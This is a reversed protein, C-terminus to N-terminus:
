RHTQVYDSMLQKELDLDFPDDSSVHGSILDIPKFKTASHISNNYALIAYIMKYKIPESKYGQTNLLHIHEILTSHLREVPSNSEPHHPTVFHINIKHLTMLDKIVTNKFEKGNDTIISKPIGHHTFFTLLSNAIEISNLTTLPYAQAYKSFPDILTLFKQQEMQFTDMHLVEFPKSPTPTINFKPRIPNRDYKCQRCIECSNIFNQITNRLQPWYYKQKIRNETEDIGRHNTKSEHYNKIVSEMDEPNEVDILKQTTRRFRYSPYKFTKRIIECFPEYNEDNEFFILYNVKPTLYEKVFDIVDQENSIQVLFRQKSEFLKQIKVKSPSNHVTTIIIQNSAHNLPANTIPIDTIPDESTNSHITVDDNNSEDVHVRLSESDPTRPRPLNQFPPNEEGFTRNFDDMYEFINGSEKAHIEVRSLADANSNLKGKKYIIEYDYEELKLRWRMLKSNPEKLSFLWQLPKHDTLIKFKRGFLYPRFYKVAWVIALLEKEITSYNQEHANLTQSAYAVPLDSGIPGQSLVAGIAYNSADTTLNFPKEFDPYQLIPENTLLNKCLAFCDTFEKTHEVKANKKLCKTLPRTLKAFNQIFRRYYGLLGLFSKIQKQTKPIPFKKIAEIKNPNPKIGAPTIIHGLYSVEKRLFESKDPQIKFNTSRLRNFVTKLNELHEQLSTSFIIIDDLYVLCKENQIGRLINDMVRQFTAPANKLGFPMRKFEYHGNEVNFATKPIDDPHVEIQHFGSALDLTTFYNAKGLKDLVDTINPLPYKDDITKSNLKRYDIVVRWKQKGSADLKKPVIWVPSSWPSNSHQIIGQELMSAIQKKVEDKHVFPYRYSRTYVPIEDSTKIKHKVQNTFSLNQGETYFIDSYEQILNLLKTREELNLHDIRLKSLDFQIPRINRQNRLKNYEVNFLKATRVENFREVRRPEFLEIRAITESKNVISTLAFFNQAITLTEPIECEHIRTYPIIINGKEINVPLKIIQQTRAPIEYTAIPPKSNREYNLALSTHPTVLLSNVLDLKAQIKELVDLGILGDFYDHFKLLHFKIDLPHPFRLVDFVPIEISQPIINEQFLTTVVIPDNKINKSYYKSAVSPNLFSNSSGTDILLKLNM